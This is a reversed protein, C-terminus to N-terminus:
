RLTGESGELYADIAETADYWSWGKIAPLKDEGVYERTLRLAERAMILVVNRQGDPIFREGNVMVVDPLSDADMFLGRIGNVVTTEAKMM